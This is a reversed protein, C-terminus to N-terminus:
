RLAQFTIVIRTQAGASPTGDALAPQARYAAVGTLAARGFGAGLPTESAVACAASLNARVICDLAVRGGVGQRMARPPYLEAIDRASPRVAWLVAPAPAPIASASIADATQPAGAPPPSLPVLISPANSAQESPRLSVPGANPASAGWSTMPAPMPPTFLEEQTSAALRRPAPEREQALESLGVGDAIATDDPADATSGAPATEAAPAAVNEAVDATNRQDGGLYLGAWVVAGGLLALLIFARLAGGERRISDRPEPASDFPREYHPERRTPTAQEPRRAPAEARRAPAAEKRQPPPDYAPMPARAAPRPPPAHGARGTSQKLRLEALEAFVGSPGYQALYDMFDAPDNSDRIVRWLEAESGLTDSQTRTRFSAAVPEAPPTPRVSRGSFVASPQSKLNLQPGFTTPAAPASRESSAGVATRATAVMRDVAFFLPDLLPDDPDGNWGSLDFAPADGVSDPPPPAILSAIVAKGSNTVRHTADLFPRSRIAARSWVILGAGSSRLAGDTSPAGGISFGAAEFMEALAKAQPEDERVCVILVDAM